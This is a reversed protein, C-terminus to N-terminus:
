NGTLAVYLPTGLLVTRVSAGADNIHGHLLRRALFESPERVGRLADVFNACKPWCGGSKM